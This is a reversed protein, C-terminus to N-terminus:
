FYRCLNVQIQLYAESMKRHSCLTSKNVEAYNYKLGNSKWEFGFLFFLDSPNLRNVALTGMMHFGILLLDVSQNRYSAFMPRYLTLRSSFESKSM